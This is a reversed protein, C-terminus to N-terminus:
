IRSFQWESFHSILIKGEVSAFLIGGLISYLAMMVILFIHTFWKKSLVSFKAYLYFTVKEGVSLGSKAQKMTFDRIDTFQKFFLERTKHPYVPSNNQDLYVPWEPQGAQSMAAASMIYPSPIPPIPQNPYMRPIFPPISITVRPREPKQSEM